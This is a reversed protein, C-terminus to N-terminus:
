EEPLPTLHEGDEVVALAELVEPQIRWPVFRVSVDALLTYAGGRHIGGLQAGSGVYPPREPELGRVTAPGAATWSGEVRATELVMLLTSTRGRVDALTLKRDYGFFGARADGSPLTAAAAGVGACGVYTTPFLTSAPTGEVYGPCHLLRLALLAAFRNEDAEWGKQKDMKAYINGAEVYPWISVLWSLREEARLAPNPMAGEPFCNNTSAYNDVAIGLQRLNNRCAIRAAAERVKAVSAVLLGGGTVVLLVVVLANARRTM